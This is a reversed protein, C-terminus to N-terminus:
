FPRTLMLIFQFFNFSINEQKNYVNRDFRLTAKENKISNNKRFRTKIKSIDKNVRRTFRPSSRKKSM